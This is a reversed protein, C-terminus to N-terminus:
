SLEAISHELRAASASQSPGALGDDRMKKRIERKWAEPSRGHKALEETYYRELNCLALNDRQSRLLRKRYRMLKKHPRSAVYTIVATVVSGAITFLGTVASQILPEQM